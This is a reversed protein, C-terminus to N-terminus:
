KAWILRARKQASLGNSSTRSERDRENLPGDSGEGIGTEVKAVGRLGRGAVQHGVLVATICQGLYLRGGIYCPCEPRSPKLSASPLRKRPIIVVQTITHAM